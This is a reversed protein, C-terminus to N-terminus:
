KIRSNNAYTSDFSNINNSGAIIQMLVILTIGWSKGDRYQDYSSWAKWMKQRSHSKTRYYSMIATALCQIQYGGYNQSEILILSGLTM